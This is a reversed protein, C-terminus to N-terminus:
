ADTLMGDRLWGHYPGCQISPTATVKPPEGTRTWGQKSNTAPCDICWTGGPTVVALHQQTAGHQDVPLMHENGPKHALWAMAGVPVQGVADGRFLGYTHRAVVEGTDVRYWDWRVGHDAEEVVNVREVLFCPVDPM